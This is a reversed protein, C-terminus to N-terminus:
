KGLLRGSVNGVAAGAMGGAYSGGKGAVTNV